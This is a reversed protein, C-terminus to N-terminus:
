TSTDPSGQRQNKRSRSFFIMLGISCLCLALGSYYLPTKEFTQLFSALSTKHNKLQSLVTFHVIDISFLFLLVSVFLGALDRNRRNM